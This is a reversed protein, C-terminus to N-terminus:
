LLSYRCVPILSIIPVPLLQQAKAQQHFWEVDMTTFRGMLNLVRLHVKHFLIARLIAGVDMSFSTFYHMFVALERLKKCAIFLPAFDEEKVAACICWSLSVLQPCTSAILAPPCIIDHLDLNTLLGGCRQLFTALVPGEAHVTLSKLSGACKDALLVATDSDLASRWYFVELSSCNALIRSMQEATISSRNQEPLELKCDKRSYM